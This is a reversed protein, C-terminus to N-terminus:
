RGTLGRPRLAFPPDTETMPVGDPWRPQRSWRTSDHSALVIGKCGDGCWLDIQRDVSRQEGMAIELAGAADRRLLYGSRLVTLQGGACRYEGPGLTLEHEAAWAARPNPVMVRLAFETDEMDRYPPQFRDETRARAVYQADTMDRFAPAARRAPDHQLLFDALSPWPRRWTFRWAGGAGREVELQQWPTSDGPDFQLQRRDTVGYRGTLDPCGSDLTLSAPTGGTAPEHRGCAALALAALAVLVVAGGRRGARRGPAFHFLHM